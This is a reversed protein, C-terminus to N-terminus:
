DDEDGRILSLGRRYGNLWVLSIATEAILLDMEMQSCTDSNDTIPKSHVICFGKYSFIPKSVICKRTVREATENILEIDM